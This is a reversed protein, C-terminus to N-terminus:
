CVGDLIAEAEMVVDPLGAANEGLAAAAARQALVRSVQWRL